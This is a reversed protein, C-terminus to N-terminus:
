FPTWVKRDEETPLRSVKAGDYKGEILKTVSETRIFWDLDAVWAGNKGQGMCFESAKCKEIAKRWNQVWFSDKMRVRLTKKRVDTLRCTKGMVQNWYTVVEECEDAIAPIHEKGQEGERNGTGQELRQIIGSYDQITGPVNKSCEEFGETANPKKSEASQFLSSLKSKQAKDIRQHDLFKCVRGVSKGGCDRVEIYGISSLEHLSRLVSKSHEEFPFCAARVLQPSALFYGEDDSHNLLAIALLRAHEPLAALQENQWFEPKITRIRAM